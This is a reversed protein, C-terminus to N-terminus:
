DLVATRKVRHTIKQTMARDAHGQTVRVKRGIRSAFGDCFKVFFRNKREGHAQLPFAKRCSATVPSSLLDCSRPHMQSASILATSFAQIEGDFDAPPRSEASVMRKRRRPL